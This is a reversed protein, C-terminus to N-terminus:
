TLRLDCRISASGKVGRNTHIPLWINEFFCNVVTEILWGQLLGDDCNVAYHWIVEQENSETFFTKIFKLTTILDSFFLPFSFFNNNATIARCGNNLKNPFFSHLLHFIEFSQKNTIKQSTMSQANKPKLASKSIIEYNEM